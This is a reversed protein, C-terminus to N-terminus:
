LPVPNTAEAIAAFQNCEIWFTGDREADKYISRGSRVITLKPGIIPQFGM